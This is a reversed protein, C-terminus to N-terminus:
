HCSKCGIYAQLTRSTKMVIVPQLNSGKIPKILAELTKKIRDLQSPHLLACPRMYPSILDPGKNSTSVM